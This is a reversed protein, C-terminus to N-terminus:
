MLIPRDLCSIFGLVIPEGLIVGLGMPSKFAYMHLQLM